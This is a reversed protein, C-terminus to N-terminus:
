RKKKGTALAHAFAINAAACLAEPEELVEEPVSYYRQVAKEGHKTDYSFPQSGLHQFQVRLEDSVVFYLTGQMIMAFQVGELKVATGGFFRAPQVEGLGGLVDLIYNVFEDAAM